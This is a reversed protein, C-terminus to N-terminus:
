SRSRRIGDVVVSDIDRDILEILEVDLLRDFGSKVLLTM